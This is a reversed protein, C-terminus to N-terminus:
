YALPLCYFIAPLKLWDIPSWAVRLEELVMFESDHTQNSAAWNLQEESQACIISNMLLLGVSSRKWMIERWTKDKVVVQVKVLCPQKLSLVLRCCCSELEQRERKVLTVGTEVLMQILIKRKLMNHARHFHIVAYCAVGSFGFLFLNRVELRYDLREKIIFMVTLINLRSSITLYYM